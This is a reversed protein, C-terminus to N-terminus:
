MYVDHFHWWAMHKGCMIADWKSTSSKLTLDCACVNKRVQEWHANCLAIVHEHHKCNGFSHCGVLFLLNSWFGCIRTRHEKHSSTKQAIINKTRHRDRQSGTERAQTHMERRITQQGVLFAERKLHNRKQHFTEVIVGNRTACTEASSLGNYIGPWNDSTDRGGTHFLVLNYHLLMRECRKATM